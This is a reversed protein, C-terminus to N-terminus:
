PGSIREWKEADIQVSSRLIPMSACTVCCSGLLLQFSFDSAEPPSRRTPVPEWQEESASVDRSLRYRGHTVRTEAGARSFLSLPTPPIPQKSSSSGSPRGGVFGFPAIGASTQCCSSAAGGVRRLRLYEPGLSWAGFACKVVLHGPSPSVSLRVSPPFICRYPIFTFIM